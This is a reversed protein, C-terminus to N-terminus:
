AFCGGTLVFRRGGQSWEVSVADRTVGPAPGVLSREERVLANLITSKGVNPRGVICLRCIDRHRPKRAEGEEENGEDGERQGEGSWEWATGIGGLNLLAEDGAGGASAGAGLALAREAKREAEARILAHLDTMGHGHVASLALPDGLGLELATARADLWREDSSRSSADIGEAKNLVLRLAVGDDDAAGGGGGGGGGMAVDLADPRMTRGSLGIQKRLWSAFHQDMPTTGSKHDALFLILDTVGLAKVAGETIREEMPVSGPSLVLRGVRGGGPQLSGAQRQLARLDRERWDREALDLGGTDIVQFALGAINAPAARWDRTTGATATM